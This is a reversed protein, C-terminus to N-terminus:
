GCGNANPTKFDRQHIWANAGYKVGKIVPLAQHITRGDATDLNQDLINPWILARGRKPQVTISVGPFDTGGGEEVDNLYLFVTILRIGSQRKLQHRIFDHHTTYFQGEEYKLLQLYESNQEPIKTISTLREIVRRAVNDDSCKNKCWANTSTRRSDVKQEHRGDSKLKGVEVSRKFGEFSGLEILRQAEENTVVNDLIVLWPGDGKYDATEKSDGPLYSPSSLIQPAYQKYEELTTINTFFENVDGPKWANPMNELDIPCRDEITEIFLQDCAGCVPACNLTMFGSNNECEGMVAWAACDEHNCKCVNRVHELKPDKSVVNKLYDLAANIREQIETGKKSHIKQEVGISEDFERFILVRYVTLTTQM